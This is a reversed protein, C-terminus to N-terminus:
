WDGEGGAAPGDYLVALEALVLERHRTLIDALARRFPERPAYQEDAVADLVAVLDVPIEHARM